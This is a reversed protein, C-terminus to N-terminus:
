VPISTTGSPWVIVCASRILSSLKERAPVIPLSTIARTGTYNRNWTRQEKRELYMSSASAPKPAYHTKCKQIFVGFYYHSM